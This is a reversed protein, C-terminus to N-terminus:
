DSFLRGLVGLEERRKNRERDRKTKWYSAWAAGTLYGGLHAWHDLAAVRFPTFLSIAEFLVIGTLFVSGRASITDQWERPLFWLTLKDNSHLMCWAAVLGAIAGSAGLSTVTLQKTLVHASLSTFSGIVGSAMFLAVFNGRGIEDHLRTGIFWLIVMNTALHKVQQHSFVSGVVSLAHPYIPVSIFYKNLMRWAPPWFKWLTFVSLNLGIIALVTAAAPPIDRWMRDKHSPPDYTEAFVYCLGLAFLTVGLAPLIRRATTLNSTDIDNNTARLHHKQIWALLPRESPDARPRAEVVASEEFKQLETNRKLAKTINEYDKAEGELWEKRKQEQEALLRAENQERYEQLVSKGWPDNAKGLEADYHGSQPKYLGKLKEEEEQEEREIRALIAADEDMPRNKRLWQLGADIVFPRASRTIDSPLDLDLTGNIRRGQLVSLIRNGLAPSVRNPGFIRNIEAASLPKSSIPVGHEVPENPKPPPTSKKKVSRTLFSPPPRISNPSPRPFTLNGLGLPSILKRPTSYLRRTPLERFCSPSVASRFTVPASLLSTSSARLGPCPIRWGISFVNSM